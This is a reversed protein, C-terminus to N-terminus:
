RGRRPRPRGERGGPSRAEPDQPPTRGGLQLAIVSASPCRWPARSRRGWSATLGGGPSGPCTCTPLPRLQKRPVTGSAWGARERPAPKGQALKGARGAPCRCPAGRTEAHPGLQSPLTPSHAARRSGATPSGGRAATAQRAPRSCAGGWPPVPARVPRSDGPPEHALAPWRRCRRRGEGAGTGGRPALIPGGVSGSAGCAAMSGDGGQKRAGDADCAARSTRECANAVPFVCSYKVLGM